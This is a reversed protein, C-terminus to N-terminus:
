PKRRQREIWIIQCDPLDQRLKNVAESTTPTRQIYLYKLQKFQALKVLGADTVETHDLILTDVTGPVDEIMRDGVPNSSLSLRTLSSNRLEPFPGDKLQIQNANLREISVHSLISGLQAQTMQAGDIDGHIFLQQLRDLRNVQEVFAELEDPTMRETLAIAEIRQLMPELGFASIWDKEGKVMRGITAPAVGAPVAPDPERVMHFRRWIVTGGLSAVQHAIEEHELGVRYQYAMWASAVCVLTVLGILVRLSWRVRWSRKRPQPDNTHDNSASTSQSM